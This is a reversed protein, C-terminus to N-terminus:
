VGSRVGVVREGWGVRVLSVVGPGGRACRCLWAGGSGRGAAGSRVGHIRNRGPPFARPEECSDASRLSNIQRHTILCCAAELLADHVDARRQRARRRWPRSVTTVTGFFCTSASRQPASRISGARVAGM